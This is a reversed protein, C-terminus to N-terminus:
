RLSKLERKLTIFFNNYKSTIRNKSTKGEIYDPLINLKNIANFLKCYIKIHFKQKLHNKM